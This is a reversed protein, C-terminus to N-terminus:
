LDWEALSVEANSMAYRWILFLTNIRLLRYDSKQYHEGNTKSKSVSSITCFFGSWELKWYFLICALRHAYNKETSLFRIQICLVFNRVFINLYQKLIKILNCSNAFCSIFHAKCM